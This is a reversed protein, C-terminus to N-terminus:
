EVMWGDTLIYEAKRGTQSCQFVGFPTVIALVLVSGNEHSGEERIMHHVRAGREYLVCKVDVSRITTPM